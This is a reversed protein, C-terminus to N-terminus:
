EDNRENLISSTPLYFVRQRSRGLIAKNGADVNYIMGTFYQKKYKESKPRSGPIPMSAFSIHISAWNRRYEYNGTYGALVTALLLKDAIVQDKLFINRAKVQVRNFWGKGPDTSCWFELMDILVLCDQGSAKDLITDIKDYDYHNILVSRAIYELEKNTCNRTGPAVCSLVPNYKNDAIEKNATMSPIQDFSIYKYGLKQSYYLLRTDDTVMVNHQGSDIDNFIGSVFDGTVKIIPEISVIDKDLTYVRDGPGLDALQKFGQGIVYIDCRDGIM